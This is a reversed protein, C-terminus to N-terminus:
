LFFSLHNNKVMDYIINLSFNFIVLLKIFITLVRVCRNCNVNCLNYYLLESVDFKESNM